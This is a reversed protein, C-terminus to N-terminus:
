SSELRIVFDVLGLSNTIVKKEQQDISAKLFVSTVQFNGLQGFILLFDDPAVM